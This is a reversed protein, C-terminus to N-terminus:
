EPAGAADPPAGDPEKWAFRSGILVGLGYIAGGARASGTETSCSTGGLWGTSCKEIAYPIERSGSTRRAFGTLGLTLWGRRGVRVALTARAGAFPYSAGGGQLVQYSTEGFLQPGQFPATVTFGIFGVEALLTARVKKWLDVGAGAEVAGHWAELPSAPRWGAAAGVEWPPLSFQLGLEVGHPHYASWLTTAKGRPWPDPRRPRLAPPSPTAAPAPAGEAPGAALPRLSLTLEEPRLDYATGSLFDTAWLPPVLVLALSVPPVLNLLWAPRFESALPVEAPEYGGLTLEVPEPEDRPVELQCPTRCAAEGSRALAGPPDTTVPIRQVSSSLVTLCGACPLLLAAPM